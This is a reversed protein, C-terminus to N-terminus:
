AARFDANDRRFLRVSRAQLQGPLAPRAGRQAVRHSGSAAKRRSTSTTASRRARRLHIQRPCPAEVNGKPGNSSTRVSRIAHCRSRSDLYVSDCDVPHPPASGICLRRAETTAIMTISAPAHKHGFIVHHDHTGTRCPLALLAPSIIHECQPLAPRLGDERDSNALNISPCVPLRNADYKCLPLGSVSTAQSPFGFWGMRQSCPEPWGM